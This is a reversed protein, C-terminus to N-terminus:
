LSTCQQINIAARTVVDTDEFNHTSGSNLLVTLTKDGVIVYVLM